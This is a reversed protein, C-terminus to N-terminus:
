MQDLQIHWCTRLNQSKCGPGTVYDINSSLPSVPRYNGSPATTKSIGGDHRYTNGCGSRHRLLKGIWNANQRQPIPLACASRWERQLHRPHRWRFGNRISPWQPTASGKRVDLHQVTTTLGVFPMPCTWSRVTFPESARSGTRDAAEMFPTATAKRLNRHRM